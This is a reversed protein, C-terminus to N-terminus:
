RVGAGGAGSDLADLRETIRAIVETAAVAQEPTLDDIVEVVAAHHAGHAQDLLSLADPTPVLYHARRDRPHQVRQILGRSVLREVVNTVTASSTALMGLLDKPSLDRQDRYGQVLLRLATLDLSSLGAREQARQAQMRESRRWRVIAESLRRGSPTAPPEAHLHEGERRVVNQPM